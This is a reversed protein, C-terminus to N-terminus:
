GKRELVESVKSVDKGDLERQKAIEIATLGSYDTANPDAGYQLLLRVVGDHDGRVADHLPSGTNVVAHGRAEAEPCAGAKLLSLVMAEKGKQTASALAGGIPHAGHELLVDMAAPDTYLAAVLAVPYGTCDPDMNPDAGAELLFRLYEVRQRGMCAVILASGRHDFPLNIITPDRALLAKTIPISGINVAARLPEEEIPVTPYRDLLFEVVNLKDDKAATVLLNQITKESPSGHESLLTKIKDVDEPSSVTIPPIYVTPAM